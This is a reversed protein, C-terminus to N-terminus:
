LLIRTIIYDSILVSVISLVVARTVSTGIERPGGRANLGISCCISSIIIGFAFSKVLGRLVDPFSVASSLGQYYLGFPLQTATNFRAVVAGGTWGIVDSIIALVPMCLMSALIRPTALFRIPDLRMMRLADVEDYISMSALEATMASGMRGALLIAMMVPSLELAVSMGVLGGLGSLAGHRALLHGTQLSLVGGIFLSVLCAMPVTAFGIEALQEMLRRRHNGRLSIRAMARFFLSVVEGM